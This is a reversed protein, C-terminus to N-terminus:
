TKEVSSAQPGKSGEVIEFTVSDGEALSKFGDGRIASYHCFIDKSGDDPGIFGWGKNDNFFKVTGKVRM